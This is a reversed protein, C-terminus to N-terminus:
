EPHPDWCLNDLAGSSGLTLELRVVAAPDFGPADFATATAQFGPQADLSTLDLTRFGPPGHTIRDETWGSPISYTRVRNSSDFLRLSAMQGSGPDIDILDISLARVPGQVFRLTFTGGDQDDNPHDFIGPVSQTPVLSNQLILVNGLEVLLDRDQSPDNPGQPTSDFLAPGLNAGQASVHLTRAFGSPSTVARGNVLPSREVDDASSFDLCALGDLRLLWAAGHQRGGDDDGRAGVGLDTVGDGDLDGLVALSQGFLDFPALLGAFGGEGNGIRVHGKVSGDANLFLVRVIDNTLGWGGVVLERVGDGDLDGPGAVSGGFRGGNVLGAFGTSSSIKTHAKVTGDRQLFLLYVAGRDIGGDDESSAGVAVDGVGDGDVDGLAAVADGFEARQPPLGTFGGQTASIKQVSKLTGNANLFLVWAAGRNDSGVGPGDDDGPAGALLDVVGDGDLDGLAALGAGVDDGENLLARPVRVLRHERVTGDAALFLVFVAGLRSNTGGSGGVELASTALDGIGDGDLDGLATVAMGFNFFGDLTGAPLGGAARDIRQPAKVSGDAALRLVWVTSNAGGAILRPLAAGVALDVVGDADIDGLATLSHGFSAESDLTSTPFGATGERIPYEDVVLGDNGLALVWLAGTTASSSWGAAGIAIEDVGDGDLDGLAAAASGFGDNNSLSGGFGGLGSGLEQQAQVTGDAALFLVFTTGRTARGPAGVGLDIVGDGDLDGLPAIAGGFSHAQGLPGVFGGQLSSIEQEDRVSGDAQLFLVWVAGEGFFAGDAGPAGVALDRVGDGDLDGLAAMSRGFYDSTDLTGGFGGQGTAIKLASKVTGDAKMFLVWAAGSFSGSAADGDSGVALEGVGDGDLDGLGAVASGFRDLNDLHGTFGGSTASIKQRVRVSGSAGLFLVYVAGRDSGGDDDGLAGVALESRGDGDLDGLAAVSVGFEDAFAGSSTGPDVVHKRYNKVAGAADMFLLWVAGNSSGAADTELAGNVDGPAGVAIEPNGDGDLDGLVAVSNGFRDRQDLADLFGATSSSIKRQGLVVGPGAGARPDPVFVTRGPRGAQGTHQAHPNEAALALALALFALRAPAPRFAVM